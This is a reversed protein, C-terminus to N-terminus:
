LLYDIFQRFGLTIIKAQQPKILGGANNPVRSLLRSEEHSTLLSIFSFTLFYMQRETTMVLNVLNSFTVVFLENLTLLSISGTPQDM